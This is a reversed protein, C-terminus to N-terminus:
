VNPTAEPVGHQVGIVRSMPVWNLTKDVSRFWVVPFGEISGCWADKFNEGKTEVKVGKPTEVAVVTIPEVILTNIDEAM